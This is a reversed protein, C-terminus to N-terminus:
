VSSPARNSSGKSRGKREPSLAGGWSLPPTFMTTSGDGAGDSVAGSSGRRATHIGRDATVSPVAAARTTSSPPLAATSSM